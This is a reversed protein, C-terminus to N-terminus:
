RARVHRLKAPRVTQKASCVKGRGARGSCSMGHWAKGHSVWGSCAMGFSVLGRWQTGKRAKAFRPVGRRVEARRVWGPRARKLYQKIRVKGIRAQGWGVEAHRSSGYGVSGPSDM